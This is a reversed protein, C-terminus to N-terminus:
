PEFHGSSDHVNPRVKARFHMALGTGVSRSRPFELRKEGPNGRRSIMMLEV